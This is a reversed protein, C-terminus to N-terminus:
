ATAEKLYFHLWALADNVKVVPKGHSKAFAIENKTSDGIYSGLDIVVVADSAMIKKLHVEDLVPKLETLRPDYDYKDWCNCSYVIHGALNLEKEFFMFADKFRTSGILCLKM